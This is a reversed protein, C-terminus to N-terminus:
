GCSQSQFGAPCGSDSVGALALGEGCFVVCVTGTLVTWLMWCLGVFLASGVVFVFVSARVFVRVCVCVCACVCMHVYVCVCVCVGACVCV